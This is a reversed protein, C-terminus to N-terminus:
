IIRCHEWCSLNSHWGMHENHETISTVPASQMKNALVDHILAAKRACTAVNSNKPVSMAWSPKRLHDNAMPQAESRRWPQHSHLLHLYFRSQRPSCWYTIDGIKVRLLERKSIACTYKMHQPLTNIKFDARPNTTQHPPYQQRWRTLSWLSYAANLSRSTTISAPSVAVFLLLIMIYIAAAKKKIGKSMSVKTWMSNAYTLMAFFM